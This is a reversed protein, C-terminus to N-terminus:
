VVIKDVSEIGHRVQNIVIDLIVGWCLLRSGLGLWLTARLYGVTRCGRVLHGHGNSSLEAARSGHSTFKWLRELCTIRAHNQPPAPGAPRNKNDRCTSRRRAGRASLVKSKARNNDDAITHTM